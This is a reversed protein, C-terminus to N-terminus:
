LCVWVCGRAPSARSSGATRALSTGGPVTCGNGRRTPSSGYRRPSTPTPFSRGSWWACSKPTPIVSGPSRLSSSAVNTSAVASEETAAVPPSGVSRLRDHLPRAAHHHAIPTRDGPPRRRIDVGTGSGGRRAGRRSPALRSSRKPSADDVADAAVRRSCYVRIARHCRAYLEAFRADDGFRSVGDIGREVSMGTEHGDGFM